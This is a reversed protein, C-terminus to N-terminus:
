ESFDWFKENLNSPLDNWGMSKVVKGVKNGNDDCVVVDGIMMSRDDYPHPDDINQFIGWADEPASLNIDTVLRYKGKNLAEEITSPKQDAVPSTIKMMLGWENSGFKERHITDADFQSYYVKCKM